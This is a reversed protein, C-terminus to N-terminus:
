GSNADDVKRSEGQISGRETRIRRVEAVLEAIGAPTLGEVPSNINIVAPIAQRAAWQQADLREAFWRLDTVCETISRSATGATQPDIEGSILAATVARRQDLLTEIQTAALSARDASSTNGSLLLDRAASLQESLRKLAPISAQQKRAEVEAELRAQAEQKPDRRPTPASAPPKFLMAEAREVRLDAESKCAPKGM